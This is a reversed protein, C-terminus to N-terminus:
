PHLTLGPTRAITLIQDASVPLDAFTLPQGDPGSGLGTGGLSPPLAGIAVRVETGDPRYTEVMFGFFGSPDTAPRGHEDFTVRRETRRVVVTGDAAREWRCDDGATWCANGQSPVRVYNSVQVSLEGARAGDRVVVDAYMYETAHRFWVAPQGAAEANEFTASPLTAHLADTLARNFRQQALGCNEIPKPPVFPPEDSPDSPLPEVPGGPVASDFSVTGSPLPPPPPGPPSSLHGSPRDSAGASPAKPTTTVPARPPEVKGRTGPSVSPCAQPAPGGHGLLSRVGPPLGVTVVGLSVALGAAVGAGGLWRQRRERRREGAILVDLDIATPPASASAERLAETLDV